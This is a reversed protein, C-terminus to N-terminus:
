KLSTKPEGPYGLHTDKKLDFAQNNEHTEEELKRASTIENQM